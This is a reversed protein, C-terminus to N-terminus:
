LRSGLKCPETTTGTKRLDVSLVYDDSCVASNSSTDSAQGQQQMVVFPRMGECECQM